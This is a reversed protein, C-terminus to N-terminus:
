YRVMRAIHRRDDRDYGCVIYSGAVDPAPITRINGVYTGILKGSLDSVEIRQVAAPDMIHIDGGHNPNPFISFPLDMEQSAISTTSCTLLLESIQMSIPTGIVQPSLDFSLLIWGVTGGKRFAIYANFVQAPGTAFFGGVDGLTIMDGHHWDFTGTCELAEGLGYYRTRWDFVSSDACLEIAHDLLELRCAHPVDVFPNGQSLVARIDPVSDCDVDIMASTDTFAINAQLHIGLDAISRDSPIEGAVLQAKTQNSFLLVVLALIM